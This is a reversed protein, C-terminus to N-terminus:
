VVPNTQHNTMVLYETGDYFVTFVDKASAATSLTPTVGGSFVYAANWLMTHSGVGDQAVILTYTEGAVGGTPAALTAISGTLTLRGIPDTNVAWAPAAGYTLTSISFDLGLATLGAAATIGGTGGQTIPLPIRTAPNLLIYQTNALDYTMYVRGTTLIDGTTLASGDDRVIAYAGLSNINVTVAGTNAFNPEFAYLAGDDLVGPAVGQAVIYANASGTSTTVPQSVNYWRKIAGRHARMTNNVDSPLMGEPAGDPAATTNDADTEDWNANSIDAM